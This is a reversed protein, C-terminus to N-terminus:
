SHRCKDQGRTQPIQGCYGHVKHLLPEGICGDHRDRKCLVYGKAGNLSVVDGEHIEVGSKFRAVKKKLDIQMTECGVICCKGWGRAVLAAHSTMGGRQTLIGAAARMGEVDEPSTEERILITKIGEANAKMAAESTFVAKGVAGGPSAPLGNAIVQAKKESSSDLIPHLIEDLQTPSVRMVATKEDIM